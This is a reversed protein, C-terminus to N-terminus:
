SSVEVAGATLQFAILTAEFILMERVQALYNRASVWRQVQQPTTPVTIGSPMVVAMEGTETNQIIRPIEASKERATSVLHMWLGMVGYAREASLAPVHGLVNAMEQQVDAAGGGGNKRLQSAMADLAYRVHGAHIHPWFRDATPTWPEVGPKTPRQIWRIIEATTNVIFAWQAASPEPGIVKPIEETEIMPTPKAAQRAAYRALLVFAETATRAKGHEIPIQMWGDPDSTSASGAEVVEIKNNTEM